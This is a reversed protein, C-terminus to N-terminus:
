VYEGRKSMYYSIERSLQEKFNHKSGYQIDRRVLDSVTRFDKRARKCAFLAEIIQDETVYSSQLSQRHYVDMLRKAEAICKNAEKELQNNLLLLEDHTCTELEVAM